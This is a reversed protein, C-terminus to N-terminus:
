KIYECLKIQFLDYKYFGVGKYHTYYLKAKCLTLRKRNSNVLWLTKNLQIRNKAFDCFEFLIIFVFFHSM